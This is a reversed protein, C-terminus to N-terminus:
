ERKLDDLFERLIGSVRKMMQVELLQMATSISLQETHDIRISADLLQKNVRESIQPLVAHVRREVLGIYSQVVLNPGFFEFKLLTRAWGILKKVDAEGTSVIRAIRAVQEDIPEGAATSLVYVIDAFNKDYSNRCDQLFRALRTYIRVVARNIARNVGAIYAPIVTRLLKKAEPSSCENVSGGVTRLLQREAVAYEGRVQRVAIVTTSRVKRITQQIAAVALRRYTEFLAVNDNGDNCSDSTLTPQAISVASTQATVFDNFDATTPTATHLLLCLLLLPSPILSLRQIRLM